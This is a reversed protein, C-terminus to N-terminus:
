RQACARSSAPRRRRAGSPLAPQTTGPPNGVPAIPSGDLHTERFQVWATAFTTADAASRCDFIAWNLDALVATIEAGSFGLVSAAVAFELKFNECWDCFGAGRPMYDRPM